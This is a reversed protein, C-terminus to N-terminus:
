GNALEALAANMQRVREPPDDLQDSHVLEVLRAYAPHETREREFYALLVLSNALSERMRVLAYQQDELPMARM